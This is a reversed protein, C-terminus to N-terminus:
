RGCAVAQYLQEFRTTQLEMDYETEAIERCRRSLRHRLDDDDLLSRMGEALDDADKHRALYGTEMPRVAEGVGGVEFAVVPTGCALSELVGNPLNDALAPHVFVDAASYLLALLHDDKVLDIATVPVPMAQEWDRARQGVVLLRFPRRTRGKLRKVAEAVFTGGKRHAQTEVSSFLVVSEDQPLGLVERAATRRIPRFVSLDLGNPIVELPWHGVLPSHRALGAIWRSPAVLTVKADAYIRQKIRWLLATRDTRLAPEDQLLPCAGCGTKWRDCDYAYCCHGTFPWMDSLRWVFPKKRSAVGFVAHSLYGGHTNYLQVLDAERFWPHRLLRWSSPLFLYQLSLADTARRALWDAARWPMTGWIPGAEPAGHVLGSVLMHSTHGRRRLSAHIRYAARGSGGQNYETSLHLINM